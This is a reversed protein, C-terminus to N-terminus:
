EEWTFTLTGTKGVCDPDNAGINAYLGDATNLPEGFQNISTKVSVTRSNKQPIPRKVTGTMKIKKILNAPNDSVAIDVSEKTGIANIKGTMIDVGAWCEVEVEEYVPEPTLISNISKLQDACFKSIRVVDSSSTMIISELAGMAMNLALSKQKLENM